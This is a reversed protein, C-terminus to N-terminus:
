VRRGRLPGHTETVITHQGEQHHDDYFYVVVWDRTRKLEHARATNSFLATFHWEGRNTHLVPLWAESRPNFRRPAITPLRGAEGKERYEEDVDLLTAVDPGDARGRTRAGRVRGLMSELTARIATARRPGLGEVTELRGDHAAIELAELTDVHLTDHIRRALEPGIGPVSQFLKEPELTGRLRELQSWRGTRLLEDIAAAIGRGIGPLAVLGDMGERQVLGQLDEELDAVTDAARRYASVRFPNAAQQELLDAAERLKAAVHANVSSQGPM